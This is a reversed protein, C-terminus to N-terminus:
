RPTGLPLLLVKCGPTVGVAPSCPDGQAIFYGNFVFLVFCFLVLLVNELDGAWVLATYPWLDLETNVHWVSRYIRM